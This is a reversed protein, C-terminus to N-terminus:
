RCLSEARAKRESATTAIDSPDMFAYLCEHRPGVFRISPDTLTSNPNLTAFFIDVSVRGM